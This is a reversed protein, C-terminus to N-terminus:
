QKWKNKPCTEEKVLIIAKVFCKCEPCRLTNGNCEYCTKLRDMEQKTMGQITTLAYRLFAKPINSLKAM